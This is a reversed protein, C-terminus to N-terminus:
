LRACATKWSVMGTADQEEGLEGLACWQQPVPPTILPTTPQQSGPNKPAPAVSAAVSVLDDRYLCALQESEAQM